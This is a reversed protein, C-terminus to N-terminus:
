KTIVFSTFGSGSLEPCSSPTVTFMLTFGVGCTYSSLVLQSGLPLLNSCYASEGSPCTGSLFYYVRLEISGNTCSLRFILQNGAGMGGSCGTSWIPGSSAYVLTDSGNGGLVNVWSITLNQAPITCPTCTAPPTSPMGREAVWRGGVAFAPLIDGVSPAHGIVLVPITRGTDATASGSSGEKEVGDLEVPSALYFYDPKSAMSGGNYIQVLRRAPTSSGPVGLRAAVGALAAHRSRQQRSDDNM